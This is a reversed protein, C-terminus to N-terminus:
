DNSLTVSGTSGEYVMTFHRLFTRGILASHPQGGESLHVGHFRGHITWGLAPVYIQGIYVDVNSAGQVGAVIGEDVVPLGLQDALASDICCEIAGTDVLAPLRIGPLTPAELAGPQFVPDFGIQVQLTPGFHVLWEDGTGGDGDDFGVRAEVM